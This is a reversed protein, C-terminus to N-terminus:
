LHRSDLPNGLSNRQFILFDRARARARAREREVQIDIFGPAIIANGCDLVQDAVVKEDFYIKEPDLIM